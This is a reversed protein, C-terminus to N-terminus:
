EPPDDIALPKLLKAASDPGAHLEAGAPLGLAKHDVLKVSGDDFLIVAGEAHNLCAMVSESEMGEPNIPFRSFDRVAYSVLSRAPSKPTLERYRKALEADAGTFLHSDDPCRLVAEQGARIIKRHLYSVLLAPGSFKPPGPYEIMETILIGGLQRLNSACQVRGSKTRIGKAMAELEASELQVCQLDAHSAGPGIQIPGKSRASLEIRTRFQIDLDDTLVFAGDNHHPCVVLVQPTKAAADYPHTAFNRIAYSCVGRLRKEPERTGALPDAGCALREDDIRIEREMLQGLLWATGGADTPAKERVASRVAEGIRMLNGRCHARVDADDKREGAVVDIPAIALAAVLGAACVALVWRMSNNM